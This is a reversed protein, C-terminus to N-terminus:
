KFSCNHFYKQIKPDLTFYIEKYEALHDSYPHKIGTKSLLMLIIDVIFFWVFNLCSSCSLKNNQIHYEFNSAILNKAKLWPKDQSAFIRRRYDRYFYDPNKNLKKNSKKFLDHLFYYRQIPRIIGFLFNTKSNNVRISAYINDGHYRYYGYDDNIIGVRSHCAAGYCLPSDASIKWEEEPIPILVRALSSPMSIATTPNFHGRFGNDQIYNFLDGVKLEGGLSEGTPTQDPVRSSQDFAILKHCVLGWAAEKYKEVVRKVKEPKWFDDSDLFCIIEGRAEAIGVNFASAQGGNEKLITRIQGTYKKLVERSEDTSGDDVVIVEINKWTQGLASDIAEGLFRGYNYNCILVTVLPNQSLEPNGADGFEPNQCLYNATKRDVKIWQNQDFTKVQHDYRSGAQWLARIRGLHRLWQMLYDFKKERKGLWRKWFSGNRFVSIFIERLLQRLWVKGLFSKIEEPAFRAYFSYPDFGTTQQGFGQKLRALYDKTLRESPILHKLILEESYWLRWGAMRLAYCLEYDGGSSLQNAKRDTLITEFGQDKLNQWAMKRITLGAGWLNGRSWTVDGIKDGQKGVVYSSAYYEFWWPPEDEFVAETRGGLAGVERHATMIESVLRVWNSAVWNDDDVFSVLEYQAVEFGKRRANSLGPEPESIVRLPAPADLPWLSRAVQATNDTCANDVVIVEWLLGDPVEQALLHRITEPLRAASNYCCIVISVNLSNTM